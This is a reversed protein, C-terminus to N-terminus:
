HGDPSIEILQGNEAILVKCGSALTAWYAQAIAAKAMEPIHEELFQMEKEKVVGGIRIIKIHPYWLFSKGGFDLRNAPKRSSKRPLFINKTSKETKEQSRKRFCTFFM